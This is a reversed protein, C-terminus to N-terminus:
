DQKSQYNDPCALILVERGLLVCVVLYHQNVSCLYDMSIFITSIVYLFWIGKQVEKLYLNLANIYVNYMLSYGLEVCVIM